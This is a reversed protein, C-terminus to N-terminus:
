VYQFKYGQGRVTVIRQKSKANEELVTRLRAISVSLMRTDGSSKYGWAERMLEERSVVQNPLHMLALLLNYESSSIAVPRSHITLTKAVVDIDLGRTFERMFQHMIENTQHPGTVSVARAGALAAPYDNGGPTMRDGVFIIDSVDCQHLRSLERMAFAKDIGKRAVDISTAGAIRVNLDPLLQSVEHALITRKSLDPDWAEKLDVNAQQGLASFTIQSGRDEIRAGDTKDYWLGLKRACQELAAITRSREYENLELSYVQDFKKGDWAYYSTGTAPLLALNDLYAYQHMVDLIQSEILEFRGGTVIAVPLIHTLSAFLRATEDSMPMKSRALTNDLDFAIMRAGAALRTYDVDTVPIIQVNM